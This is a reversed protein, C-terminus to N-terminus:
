VGYDFGKLLPQDPPPIHAQHNLFSDNVLEHTRAVAQFLDALVDHLLNLRGTEAESGEAYREWSMQRLLVVLAEVHDLVSLTGRAGIMTPKKLLEACQVMSYLVSRPAQDNQWLMELVQLPQARMQFLRRYADRTGLMRLFASLEIETAHDFETTRQIQNRLSSQIALVANSTIIARELHMGLRCLHWGEDSLLTAEAVAFFQPISRAVCDVLKRTAGIMETEEPNQRYRVKSFVLRLEALISWAEPTMFEQISDANRCVRGVLFAASGQADPKIMMQYRDTRSGISRRSTQTGEIPPLLRSWIPRYHKREAANLEELELSEIVQIMYALSNLRELYRGLWYFSEAVRSTIKRTVNLSERPQIITTTGELPGEEKKFVWTDKSGGGSEFSTLLSGESSVRTLAGAFTNFHDGSRLAFVLHDQVRRVYQTGELALAVGGEAATQAVYNQPNLRLAMRINQEDRPSPPLGRWNGLIEEGVLPRIRYNALDALVMERQDIDGLWYTGITPLIPAEGLYFRIIQPAFCLLARDDALESGFGNLMAVTGKRLCHVLGPVGLLSDRRCVLPDVYTQALRNYIVEVQELGGVVKLYLKDGLVVLDGGQALQMGMRRALFSHESYASSGPGPTLLVATFDRDGTKALGQLHYLIELPVDALSAVPQDAFLDPNVRSLIRRNQMMYSIGSGRQFHHSKVSIRGRKDRTLCIGCLHLYRGAAPPVGIAPHLFSPSGMVSRLPLSGHYLIDKQGYIDALFHEFARLRQDIGRQILSWEEGAFVHPILDCDWPRRSPGSRQGIHNINFTVDMERMTAAMRESLSRLDAKSFHSLFEFVDAFAPRVGGEPTLHEHWADFSLPVAQRAGAWGSRQQKLQGGDM